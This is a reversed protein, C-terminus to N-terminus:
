NKGHLQFKGVVRNLGVSTENLEGALAHLTDTQHNTDTSLGLLNGVAANINTIAREQDHMLTGIGSIATHMAQMHTSSDAASTAVHQLRGVNGNAQSINEELLRATEGINAAVREALGSIESTADETRRALVRVEDAVVAFGRGQEGARAAEIAANLALLNTQSSIGRITNTITSISEATRVLERTVQATSAMNQQFSQFNVVTDAIEKSMHGTTAATFQATAAAEDLQSLATTAASLVIEADQKIEKVSGHLAASVGKASDATRSAERAKHSLRNAGDYVEEVLTRLDNAMRAMSNITRGIEDKGVDELKLNLNGSALAAMSYDLREIPKILFRAAAFSLIIGAVLSGGIFLVLIKLSDEASAQQQVLIEKLAGHEDGVVDRSLQDIRAMSDRMQADLELARADDNARAASIVAMKAPKIATVLRALEVVAPNQPLATVLHQTNEELLSSARIARIAAARTQSPDALSILEAQAWGMELVSTRVAFAAGVHVQSQNLTTQLRQNQELISYIAYGGTLAEVLIGGMFLGTVAFIKKKWSLNTM